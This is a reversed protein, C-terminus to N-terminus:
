TMNRAPVAACVCPTEAKVYKSGIPNAMATPVAALTLLLVTLLLAGLKKNM